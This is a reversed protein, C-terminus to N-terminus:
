ILKSLATIDADGGIVPSIATFAAVSIIISFILNLLAVVPGFLVSPLKETLDIFIHATTFPVLIIYGKLTGKGMSSVVTTIGEGMGKLITGINKKTTIDEKESRKFDYGLKCLLKTFLNEKCRDGVFLDIEDYGYTIYETGIATESKEYADIKISNDANDKINHSKLSFFNIELNKYQSANALDYCRYLIDASKKVIKWRIYGILPPQTFPPQTIEGFEQQTITYKGVSSDNCAYKGSEDIVCYWEKGVSTVCSWPEPGSSVWIRYIGKKGLVQFSITDNKKLNSKQKPPDIISVKSIDINPSFKAPGTLNMENMTEQYVIAGFNVSLPYIIYGIIAITILSGGTRRTLPFAKMVIGIPLIFTFMTKELVNLLEYQTIVIFLSTYSFKILMDLPASLIAFPRGLPFIISVLISTIISIIGVPLGIGTGAAAVGGAVGILELPLKFSSFFLYTFELTMLESITKVIQAEIGSLFIRGMTFYDIGSGVLSITALNIVTVIPIILGILIVSFIFESFEDTSWARVEESGIVEAVMKGIAAVAASILLAIACAGWWNGGIFQANIAHNFVDIFNMPDM